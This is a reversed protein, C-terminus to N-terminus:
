NFVFVLTFLIISFNDHTCAFLRQKTYTTAVTQINGFTNAFFLELAQSVPQANFLLFQFVSNVKVNGFCENSSKSHVKICPM